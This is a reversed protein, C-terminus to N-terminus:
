KYNIKRESFLINGFKQKKSFYIYYNTKKQLESAIVIYQIELGDNRM